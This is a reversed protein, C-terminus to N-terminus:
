CHLASSKMRLTGWVSQWQLVQKTWKRVINWGLKAILIQSEVLM